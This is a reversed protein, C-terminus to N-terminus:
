HGQSVSTERGASAGSRVYVQEGAPAKRRVLCIEILISLFGDAGPVAGGWSVKQNNLSQAM